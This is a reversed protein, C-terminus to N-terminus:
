SRPDDMPNVEHHFDSGQIMLMLLDVVQMEQIVMMLMCMLTVVDVVQMKGLLAVM